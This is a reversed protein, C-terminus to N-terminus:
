TEPTVLRVSDAFAVSWPLPAVDPEVWGQRAEPTFLTEKKWHNLAAKRDCTPEYFLEEPNTADAEHVAAIYYVTLTEHYGSYATNATGVGCNHSTISDRLFPLAEAPTRDRLTMWCTVLHAEHTWEGKTLRGNIFDDFTQEHTRIM